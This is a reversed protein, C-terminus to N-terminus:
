IRSIQLHLVKLITQTVTAVRYCFAEHLVIIFVFFFSYLYVSTRWTNNEGLCTGILPQLGGSDSDVYELKAAAMNGFSTAM